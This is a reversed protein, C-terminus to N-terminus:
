IGSKVILYKPFKYASATHGQQQYMYMNWMPDINGFTTSYSYTTRNNNKKKSKLMAKATEFDFSRYAEENM